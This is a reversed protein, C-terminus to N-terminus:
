LHDEGIEKWGDGDYYKGEYLDYVVMGLNKDEAYHNVPDFWHTYAPPNVKDTILYRYPTEM